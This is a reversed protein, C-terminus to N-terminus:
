KDNLKILVKEAWSTKETYYESDTRIPVKFQHFDEMIKILNKNIAKWRTKKIQFIIEDHVTMLIKVPLNNKVKYKWCNFMAVKMIDAACGQILFNTSKYSEDERCYNKRGFINEVYGKSKISTENNMMLTTIKKFAKKYKRIFQTAKGYSIGLVSSLAKPGMGYWIGFNITKAIGREENTVDKALKGTIKCATLTHLDKNHIISAIMDKDNSFHAGVRLEIQSYDNCININGPIATFCKRVIGKKPVSHIAIGTGIRKGGGASYRGTVTSYPNFKCYIIGYDKHNKLCNIAAQEELPQTYTNYIKILQRYKLIMAVIIFDKNLKKCKSIFSRLDQNYQHEKVYLKLNEPLIYSLAEESTSPLTKGMKLVPFNFIDGFLIEGVQKSSAPNIEKGIINYLQKLLYIIDKSITKNINKLTKINVCVGTSEMEYTVFIQGIENTYLPLMKNRPVTFKYHLKLCWEADDLAYQTIIDKPIDSYNPDRNFEKKFSRKNERLWDKCVEKSDTNIRLYRRTLFKLNHLGLNYILKSQVMTCHIKAGNLFVKKYDIYGMACFMTFDFKMNHAVIENKKDYFIMQIFEKIKKQDKYIIGKEGASTYYSIMFVKHKQHFPDFGTTESDIAIIKGKLKKM